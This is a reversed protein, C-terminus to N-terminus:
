NLRLKYTSTTTEILYEDNSIKLISVVLNTVETWKTKVELDLSDLERIKRIAVGPRIPAYLDIEQIKGIKTKTKEGPKNSVKEIKVKLGSKGLEELYNKSDAYSEM